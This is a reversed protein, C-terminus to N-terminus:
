QTTQFVKIQLEMKWGPSLHSTADMSWAIATTHFGGATFLHNLFRLQHSLCPIHQFPFALCSCDNTRRCLFPYKGLFHSSYLGVEGKKYLQDKFLATKGFRVCKFIQVYSKIVWFTLQGKTDTPNQNGSWWRGVSVLIRPHKLVKCLIAYILVYLRGEM